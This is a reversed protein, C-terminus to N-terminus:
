YSMTCVPVTAYQTAVALLAWATPFFVLSYPKLWHEEFFYDAEKLLVLM